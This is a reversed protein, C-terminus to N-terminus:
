RLVRLCRFVSRGPAQTTSRSTSSAYSPRPEFGPPNGSRGFLISNYTNKEERVARSPSYSNSSSDYLIPELASGEPGYSRLCIGTPLVSSSRQPRMKDLSSSRSPSPKCHFMFFVLTAGTAQRALLRSSFFTLFARYLIWRGLGGGGACQARSITDKPPM